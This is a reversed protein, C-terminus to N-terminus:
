QLIVIKRYNAQLSSNRYKERFVRSMVQVPIFFDEEKEKWTNVETLGGGTVVLHVHPHYMLNQGWTHLISFFGIEEGLYKEDRVLEQLTESSSRFLIKYIKEQNQIAITYLESPITFVIHYYKINLVEEKRAEIWKLKKGTQCNPCHRNRCSNYAIEEYGCEDCIYKHAGINATKCNKIANIVKKKYMVIKHEKEYRDLGNNLIEQIKEM